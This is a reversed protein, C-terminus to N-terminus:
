DEREDVWELWRERAAVEDDAARSSADASVDTAAEGAAQREHHLRDRQRSAADLREVAREHEDQPQAAPDMATM